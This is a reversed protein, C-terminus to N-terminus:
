QLDSREDIGTGEVMVVYDADLNAPLQPRLGHRELQENAGFDVEFGALDLDGLESRCPHGSPDGGAATSCGPAAADGRSPRRTRAATELPRRAGRCSRAPLRRGM